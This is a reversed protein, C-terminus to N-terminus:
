TSMSRVKLWGAISYRIHRTTCVEHPLNSNFCVLRNARPEIMTHTKEDLSYLKLEGGHEPQWNENLYYVCSIRRDLTTAFQDVHKKYFNGLQYVAFHAEINNLGLFLSQNLISRIGNIKTFWANIATDDSDEDLWYIQDNRITPVHNADINQGIKAARFSGDRYVVQLTEWLSQYHNNGLFDDIIFFGKTHIDDDLQQSHTIM